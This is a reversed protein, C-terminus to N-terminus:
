DVSSAKLWNEYPIIHELNQIAGRQSHYASTLALKRNLDENSLRKESKPIEGPGYYKGFYYLNDYAPKDQCEKKVIAHTMKHHIHGYEGWKNHTVIKEWQKYDVMRSIDASIGNKVYTWDDKEGDQYDPYDLIIGKNGTALLTNRFEDARVPNYGNTICVVLWGGERLNHGGFISEDDPHAVIMLKSCQAAGASTLTDRSVLGGDCSVRVSCM